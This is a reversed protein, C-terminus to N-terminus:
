NKNPSSKSLLERFGVFLLFVGFIRRLLTVDIRAAILAAAICAPVGFIVCWLVARKEILGNKIHGLLAPVACCVFYLLNIGGAQLQTM